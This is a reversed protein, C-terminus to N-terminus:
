IGFIASGAVATHTRIYHHAMSQKKTIQWQEAFFVVKIESLFPTFKTTIKAVEDLDKILLRVSFRDTRVYLYIYM